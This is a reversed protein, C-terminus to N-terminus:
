ILPKGADIWAEVSEVPWDFHKAIDSASWGREFALVTAAVRAKLRLDFDREVRLVRRRSKHRAKMANQMLKLKIRTKM